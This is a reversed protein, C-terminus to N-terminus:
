LSRPLTIESVQWWAPPLMSQTHTDLEAARSPHEPFGQDWFGHSLAKNLSPPCSTPFLQQRCDLSSVPYRSGSIQQLKPVSFCMKASTGCLPSFNEQRSTLIHLFIGGEQTKLLTWASWIGYLAGMGTAVGSKVDVGVATKKRVGRKWDFGLMTRLALECLKEWM